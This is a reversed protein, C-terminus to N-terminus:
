AKEISKYFGNTIPYRRDKRSFAKATIKTGPASQNRKYENRDLMQWVRLITERDYRGSLDDISKEGEILGKLIGDLIEYDPLSDQDTQNERLEASPARTLINDPIVHELDNRWHCLEYVQTKYVDKLANFGGNMDGYITAYGVAMESKNGTTLLMKGTSNSLAMLINGRIRSQINEHALDQLNSISSEFAKLPEEISITDLKVGLNHALRTADRISEEATFQSPMMVCHVNESGLGDVALVATLASDVGGSLGLLVGKFGNKRVYDAIGLRLANYIDTMEDVHPIIHPEDSIRAVCEEFFPYQHTLKGSANLVFSGGEFVLDDQGGIQNVYLLPISNESVRHRAFNLRVDHKDMEYPSGNPIIFIEAGRSKLHAAVDAHWMDECIMVGLKKGKFEMPEAFPGGEFIRMEDFVDYNPLHHKFITDIITGGHILHCASYIKGEHRWPTSLLLAAKWGKSAKVLTDIHTHIADIFSPKLILDEPPYGCTVLESFVILEAESKAAIATIKKFNGDLDGVTPNIQAIEIDLGCLM